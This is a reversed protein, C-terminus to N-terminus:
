DNVGGLVVHPVTVGEKTSPMEEADGVDLTSEKEEEKEWRRLVM